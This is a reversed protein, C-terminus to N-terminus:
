CCSSWFHKNLLSDLVLVYVYFIHDMKKRKIENLWETRKHHQKLSHMAKWNWNILLLLLYTSQILNASVGTLNVFCWQCGSEYIPGWSYVAKISNCQKLAWWWYPLSLQLLQKQQRHHQLYDQFTFESVVFLEWVYLEVVWSPM